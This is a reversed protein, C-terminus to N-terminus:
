ILQWSQCEVLCSRLLESRWVTSVSRYSCIARLLLLVFDEFEARIKPPNNMIPKKNKSPMLRISVIKLGTWSALLTETFISGSSSRFSFFLWIILAFISGMTGPAMSIMGTFLCTNILSTFLKM